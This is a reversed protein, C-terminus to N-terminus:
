LPLTPVSQVHVFMSMWVQRHNTDLAANGPRDVDLRRPVVKLGSREM